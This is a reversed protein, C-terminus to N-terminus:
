GVIGIKIVHSTNIVPIVSAVGPSEICLMAMFGEPAEAMAFPRYQAVVSLRNPDSDDVLNFSRGVGILGKDRHDIRVDMRVIEKEPENKSYAYLSRNIEENIEHRM